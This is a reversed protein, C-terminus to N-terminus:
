IFEVTNRATENWEDYTELDKIQELAQLLRLQKFNGIFDALQIEGDLLNELIPDKQM